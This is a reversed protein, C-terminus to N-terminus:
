QLCFDDIHLGVVVTHNNTVFRVICVMRAVRCCLRRWFFLFYKNNFLYGLHCTCLAHLDCAFGNPKGTNTLRSTLRPACSCQLLTKHPTLYRSMALCTFSTVHACHVRLASLGPPKGTNPSNPPQTLQSCMTFIHQMNYSLPENNSSRVTHCMCLVHSTAPLGKPKGPNPQSSLLCM